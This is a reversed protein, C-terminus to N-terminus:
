AKVGLVRAQERQFAKQGAETLRYCHVGGANFTEALKAYALGSADVGARTCEDATLPVFTDRGKRWFARLAAATAADIVAVKKM